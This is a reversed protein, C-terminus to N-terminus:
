IGCDDYYKWKNKYIKKDYSQVMLIIVTAAAAVLAAGAILTGFYSNKQEM